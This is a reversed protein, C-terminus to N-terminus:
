TSSKAFSLSLVSIKVNGAKVIQTACALVTAGSTVVDDVILVHKGSVRAPNALSFAGEVNDTRQWRDKHTQTESFKIRKVAHKEVAIGTIESVGQALKESQNYGRQRIRRRTLPVPIILDIGEFFGTPAFEEAMMRGMEVAYEPRDFYKMDYVVRSAQSGGSHFMLAACREIPLLHEFLRSM